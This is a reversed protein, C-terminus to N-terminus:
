GSSERPRHPGVRRQGAAVNLWEEARKRARDAAQRAHAAARRERAAIEESRGAERLAHEDALRASDGLAEAVRSLTSAL